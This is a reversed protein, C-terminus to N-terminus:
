LNIENLKLLYSIYRLAGLEKRIISATSYRRSEEPHKREYTRARKSSYFGRYFDALMDHYGQCDPSDRLVEIGAKILKPLETRMNVIPVEPEPPPVYPGSIRDLEETSIIRAM